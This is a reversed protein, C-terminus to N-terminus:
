CIRLIVPQYAMQNGRTRSFFRVMSFGFALGAFASIILWPESLTFHQALLGALIMMLLPMFYTLASAKVFSGEDIGIVVVDGVKVRCNDPKPIRIHSMKAAAWESLSKQGCSDGSSCSGCASQRATEVVLERDEVGVIVAREEIM